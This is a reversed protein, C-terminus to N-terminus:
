KRKDHSEKAKRHEEKLKEIEARLEPDQISDLDISDISKFDLKFKFVGSMYLLTLLSGWLLSAQWLNITLDHELIKSYFANWASQILLSPLFVLVAILALALAVSLFNLQFLKM